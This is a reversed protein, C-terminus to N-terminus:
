AEGLLRRLNGGAVLAKDADSLESYMINAIPGGPTYHPLASGFLMREAGYRRACDALADHAVFIGIEIHLNPHRELLPYLSRHVRYNPRLLVFPLDPHAACVSNVADWNTEDHDVFVPIRRRELATLLEGSCWEALSYGHAQPFVRAARVGQEAMRECLEEAPPMEDTHHPMVVWCPVFRKGDALDDALAANGTAPDLEKGLAHFVLARAIGCRELEAELDDASHFQGPLPQGFRGVMCNCDWFDM